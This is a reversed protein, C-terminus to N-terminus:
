WSWYPTGEKEHGFDDDFYYDFDLNARYYAATAFHGSSIQVKDFHSAFHGVCSVSPNMEEPLQIILERLGSLRRWLARLHEDIPDGREVGSLLSWRSFDYTGRNSPRLDGNSWCLGDGAFGMQAEIKELSQSSTITFYAYSDREVSM